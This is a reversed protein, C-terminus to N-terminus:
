GGIIATGTTGTARIGGFPRTEAQFVLIRERTNWIGMRIMIM